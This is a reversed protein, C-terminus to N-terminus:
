DIIFAAKRGSGGETREEANVRQPRGANSRRRRDQKIMVGSNQGLKGRVKIVNEGATKM